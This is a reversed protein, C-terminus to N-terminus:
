QAKTGSVGGVLQEKLGQSHALAEAAV